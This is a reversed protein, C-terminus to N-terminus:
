GNFLGGTEHKDNKFGQAQLNTLWQRLFKNLELKARVNIGGGHYVQRYGYTDQYSLAEAMKMDNYIRIEMDPDAIMDGNQKYYHSLAIAISLGVDKHYLRDMNLDMYSGSSLKLYEPLATLDGLIAELKKYITNYIEPM